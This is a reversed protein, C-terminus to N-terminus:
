GSERRLTHTGACLDGTPPPLGFSGSPLEVGSRLRWDPQEAAVPGVETLVDALATAAQLVDRVESPRQMVDEWTFRLVLWGETVLKNYRRADRVLAEHGGHWEFSDAEM